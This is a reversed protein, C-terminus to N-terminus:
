SPRGRSTSARMTTTTSSALTTRPRSATAPSSSRSVPRADRRRRHGAPQLRDQARGQAEKRGPRDTGARSQGRAHSPRQDPVASFLRRGGPGAQARGGQLCRRHLRRRGRDGQDGAGPRRTRRRGPLDRGGEVEGRGSHVRTGSARGPTPSDDANSARVQAVLLAGTLALGSLVMWSVHTRGHRIMPRISCLRM